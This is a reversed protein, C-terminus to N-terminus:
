VTRLYQNIFSIAMGGDGVASGVRRNAEARVDGAAFVGPVSAELLYPDRTLRWNRPRAGRSTFQQGVLIFGSPDRELLGAAIESHPVAGIFIFMAGAEISRVAGTQVNKVSVADLRDSGLAEVVDANYLVEIKESSGIQDVLYRSMRLSEGRVVMVVPSGHRAFLLAGQAASNAGGVVVVQRGAYSAAETRAAGYYVGAGTLRQVGPADLRNVSVGTAILVAHCAIESGDSLVVYRYPDEARLKVAEVTTLIEAGFRQAQATARTALDAGSLGRPFGLYNEILASTGAQGGTAEKEIVAVPIGESAGYVAAALGAPGAGVVVLSYFPQAAKTRLGCREALTRNDPQILSSGDPFFVVPLPQKGGPDLGEVLARAGEDREADLWLYPIRNRGLFDKVDHSGPSWLTGVVRIGDFPVPVSGVWDSLLDDLVPYLNQEPPDWPKMLYYDLGITNISAIAAPTDAYATLLAKKAEPYLKLAEQLFEIGSMGPMRQDVLLLAVLEGRVKVVRLLSLAESGSLSKLIRYSSGYRARLDREVAGLVPPDDDVTLIIPLGM